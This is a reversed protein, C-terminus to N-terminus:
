LNLTKTLTNVIELSTKDRFRIVVKNPKIYKIFEEEIIFYVSANTVMYKKSNYSVWYEGNKAKNVVPTTQTILSEDKYFQIDFFQINEIQNGFSLNISLLDGETKQVEVSQAQIAFSYFFALILLTKKFIQSSIKNGM